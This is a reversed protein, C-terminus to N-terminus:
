ISISDSVAHILGSRESLLMESTEALSAVGLSRSKMGWAFHLKFKPASATSTGCELVSSACPRSCAH